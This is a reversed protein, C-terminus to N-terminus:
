ADIQFEGRKWAARIRNGSNMRRQGPNLREYKQAHFGPEENLVEDALKCVESWDKGELLQAVPDGNNLSKAGRATVCTQYKGRYRQLQQSMSAASGPANAEFERELEALTAAQAKQLKREGLADLGASAEKWKREALANRVNDLQQAVTTRTTM